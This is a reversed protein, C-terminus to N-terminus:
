VPRTSARTHAWKELQENQTTHKEVCLGSGGKRLHQERDEKGYSELRFCQNPVEGFHIDLVIM